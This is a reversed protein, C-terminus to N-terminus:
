LKEKLRRLQKDGPFFRLAHDIVNGAATTENGNRLFHYIKIFDKKKVKDEAIMRELATLYANKAPKKRGQAALYDGMAMYPALREPLARHMQEPAIGFWAMLALADEANDPDITLANKLIKLGQETKEQEFLFAAYNFCPNRNRPLVEVGARMLSEAQRNQNQQFLFYGADQLLQSNLPALQVARTFYRRAAATKGMAAATQAAIGHYRPNLPDVRAACAAARHRRSLTEATLREEASNHYHDAFCYNAWLFGGNAIVILLFLAAIATKLTRNEAAPKPQLYTAQHGNHLRTHAASVAIALVFFFYLGNAGIQLNFDVFSHLFIALIAACAGASLLIARQERRHQYTRFTGAFIRLLAAIFLTWFILGGTSFFGLYDNHAHILAGHNEPYTRYRPYIHQLTGLGSGCLTFDGIINAIDPWRDMRASYIEGSANRIDSFRDFIRDWAQTGTLLLICVFIIGLVMGSKKQHTRRMLWIAFVGLSLTLSIIGGRSQSVFVSAGIIVTATGYLFHRSLHRHLFFEALHKRPQLSESRPRYFLFLSLVLPFIMEMLGAYHNRNVYPGMPFGAGKTCTRLWYIKDHPLPYQLLETLFEIIVLFALAAGLAAIVALSRKLLRHDTLLQVALWYFAVYTSFRLFERFTARPHVSLPFWDGAGLPELAQTYIRYAEPSLLKVIAAPLPITQLLIWGCLLLLPLIAPTRYLPSAERRQSRLLLLAGLAVLMEMIAYSWVEVTGFALPSFILAALFCYFAPQRSLPRM